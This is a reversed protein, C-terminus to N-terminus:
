MLNQEKKTFVLASALVILITFGSIVLINIWIPLVSQGLIVGRLADVGYTLPDFSISYFKVM